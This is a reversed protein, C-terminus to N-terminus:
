KKLRSEFFSLPSILDGAQRHTDAKTFNPLCTSGNLSVEVDCKKLRTAEAMEFHCVNLSGLHAYLFVKIVKSGNQPNSNFKTHFHHRQRHCRSWVV